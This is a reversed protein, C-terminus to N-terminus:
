GLYQIPFGTLFDEKLHKWYKEFFGQCVIIWCCFKADEGAVAIVFYTWDIQLKM